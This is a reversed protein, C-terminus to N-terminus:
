EIVDGAFDIGSTTSTNSQTPVATSAPLPISHADSKLPRYSKAIPLEDGPRENLEPTSVLSGIVNASLQTLWSQSRVPRKRRAPASM